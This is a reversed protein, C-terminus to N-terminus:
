MYSGKEVGGMNKKTNFDEKYREDVKRDRCWTTKKGGRKAEELEPEREARQNEKYDERKMEREKKEWSEGEAKRKTNRRQKM